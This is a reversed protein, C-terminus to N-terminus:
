SKGRIAALLEESPATKLIFTEAGARQMREIMLDEEYMSLGIVRTDPLHLLIQRTAEDGNMLPMAADMVIVDPKLKSAMDVAERGNAAQGVVEMDPEENLLSSLGERVIEHDDVVLVRLVPGEYPESARGVASLEDFMREGATTAPIEGDPITIIFKSGHGKASRIKMRGGLLEVRERISFLGFGATERLNDPDFGRGPDSVSLTVCRGLRRLRVTAEDTRAHKVVNFLMEQGAKYLFAKLADSELNVPHHARVFVVLGHKVQIQHALWRFTECLDTQYLVAPSLQHSLSRSKEIAENMMKDIRTTMGHLTSDHRVRSGLMGLHFKAAAIQQQLDDHLIDALRKRERDEAQSLELTLKQLQRARHELERTRQAVKVELTQTLERLAQEMRRRATTDRSSGVVLEVNGDADRVPGWIFHFYAAIGTPSEYFVEDEIPEGTALIHEIHANLRSALEPPYNLDAFNKGTVESPKRGFLRVMAQNVYVFRKDRDFAYVYDPIAAVTADFFRAQREFEARSERLAEEARKRDTIDQAYLNIYGGDIYPAITLLYTRDGAAIEHNTVVEEAQASAILNRVDTPIQQPRDDAWLRLLEEAATNNYLIQHKTSVRLVPNPSERAIRGLWDMTQAARQAEDRLERLTKNADALEQAQVRLEEQQVRLEENSATLDERQEELRANTEQLALEAIKRDTDDFVYGKIGTLEGTESFQAIVNAVVYIEDGNPCLQKSEHRLVKGGVKVQDLLDIWDAPNFESMDCGVAEAPSEFGYIEAFAPNCEIVRGEPSALFDGTLDEMFFRRYREESEQLAQRQERLVRVSHASEELETLDSVVLCISTSDTAQLMSASLLAPVAAGDAARLTLHEQVPATQVGQLIAELRPQQPAAAFTGVKRGVVQHMPMRMLDCFRKNCFLITGDPDVTVAGENMTEVIVRYAHEAGTLSYIQEGRLGAVVIADVEGQRIAEITQEAEALQRGLEQNEELLQAKTLHDKNIDTM